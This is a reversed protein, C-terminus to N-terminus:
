ENYSGNRKLKELVTAALSRVADGAVPEAVVPPKYRQVPQPSPAATAPELYDRWTAMFRSWHMVYQADKGACERTYADVARFLAEYDAQTRIQKACLKMGAAKGRKRPYRGYLAEFDFRPVNPVQVSELLSVQAATPEGSLDLSLM